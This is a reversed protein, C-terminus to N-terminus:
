ATPRWKACQRKHIKNGWAWECPLTCTHNYTPNKHNNWSAKRLLHLEDVVRQYRKLPCARFVATAPLCSGSCLAQAAEWAVWKHWHWWSISRTKQGLWWLCRMLLLRCRAKLFIRHCLPLKIQTFVSLKRNFTVDAHCLEYSWWRVQMLAFNVFISIQM